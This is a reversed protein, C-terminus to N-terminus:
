VLGRSMAWQVVETVKNMGLREYAASRHNKFTHLAMGLMRAAVRESFGMAILTVVETQRPTLPNM